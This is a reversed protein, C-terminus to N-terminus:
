HQSKQLVTKFNNNINQYNRNIKIIVKAHYRSFNQQNFIDFIFM